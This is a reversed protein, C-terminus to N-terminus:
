PSRTRAPPLRHRWDYVVATGFVLDQLSSNSRSMLVWFLGMPFFVCAAARLLAQVVPLRRGETTVVRLGAVQKGVTRGTVLWGWGLYAIAFAAGVALTVPTSPQPWRFAAPRVVFKLGAAAVYMAALATLVVIFDVVDALLRSAIGARRGELERVVIQPVSTM